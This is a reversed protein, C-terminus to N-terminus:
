NIIANDKGKVEKKFNCDVIVHIVCNNIVIDSIVSFVMPIHALYKYIQIM